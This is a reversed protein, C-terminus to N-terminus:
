YAGPSPLTFIRADDRGGELLNGTTLVVLENKPGFPLISTCGDCGSEMLTSVEGAANIALLTAGHSAAAITGDALFAFDDIPGTAAFTEVQGAAKTGDLAVRFLKQRSSNSIYIWGDHIKLGNAGPRQDTAAPDTTLMPDSLWETITDSALDLQWIRGALSDAALITGPAVEVLGNLFLAQPVPITRIVEGEPSLVVFANTQTFAPGEAFSKGHATLVIGDDRVLIGVPHVDLTALPVPAANGDWSLITRDFYSTVLLTGNSDEALNELFTGTPYSAVTRTTEAQGGNASLALMLLARTLHHRLTMHQGKM